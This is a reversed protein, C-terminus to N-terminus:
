KVQEMLLENVRQSAYDMTVSVSLLRQGLYLIIRVKKAVNIRLWRAAVATSYPKIAASIESAANPAIVVNPALAVAIHFLVAVATSFLVQAM